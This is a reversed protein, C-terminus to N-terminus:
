FSRCGMGRAARYVSLVEGAALVAYISIGPSPTSGTADQLIILSAAILAWILAGTLAGLSRLIPGWFVWSGNAWLACGRAMAGLFLFNGVNESSLILSLYRFASSEITGPWIKIQLALGLMAAAMVWDFLRDLKVCGLAM